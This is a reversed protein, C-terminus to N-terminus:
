PKSNLNLGCDVYHLCSAVLQKGVMAVSSWAHTVSSNCIDRDVLCSIHQSSTM